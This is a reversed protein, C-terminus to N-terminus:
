GLSVPCFEVNCTDEMQSCTPCNANCPCGMQCEVSWEKALKDCLELDEPLLDFSESKAAFAWSFANLLGPKSASIQVARCRASEEQENKM